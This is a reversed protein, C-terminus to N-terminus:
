GRPEQPAVLDTGIRVLRIVDLADELADHAVTEELGARKKCEGLAPPLLDGHRWFYMAPDVLRRHIALYKDIELDNELMRLDFTGPNKGGVVVKPRGEEDRAFGHTRLWAVLTPGVQEPTVFVEHPLLERRREKPTLSRLHKIRAELETNMKRAIEHWPLTDPDRDVLLHIRPLEDLELQNNLDDIVVGVSLIKGAHIDVDCTELDLSVYRM